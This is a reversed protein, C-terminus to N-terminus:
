ELNSSALRQGAVTGPLPRPRTRYAHHTYLHHICLRVGTSIGILYQPKFEYASEEFGKRIVAAQLSENPELHNAPQNFM